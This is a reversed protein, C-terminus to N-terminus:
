RMREWLEQLVSRGGPFLPERSLDPRIYPELRTAGTGITRAASLAQNRLPGPPGYDRYDDSEYTRQRASAATDATQAGVLGPRAWETATTAKIHGPRFGESVAEAARLATTAQAQKALENNLQTSSKTQDVQAALQEVQGVAQAAQLASAVAPGMVNEMRASAGPMASISASAGSAGAGSPASVNPATAGGQQYALIPNLGAARMDAIGRQYSTGSMERAFDMATAMGERQFAEQNAISWRQFAEQRDAMERGYAAQEAQQQDQFAMQANAIARNEKNAKNAGFLNMAGGVVAGVINGLM